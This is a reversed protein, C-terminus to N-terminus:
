LPFTVESVSSQSPYLTKRNNRTPWTSRIFHAFSSGKWMTNARTTNVYLYLIFFTSGRTWTKTVFRNLKLFKVDHNPLSPWFIAGYFHADLAARNKKKMWGIMDNMFKHHHRQKRVNVVAEYKAREQQRTHHSTTTTSSIDISEIPLRLYVAKWNTEKNAQKKNKNQKKKDTHTSPSIQNLDRNIQQDGLLYFGSENEMYVSMLYHLYYTMPSNWVSLCAFNFWISM